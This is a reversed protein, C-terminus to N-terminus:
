LRWPLLLRYGFWPFHIIKSRNFDPEYRDLAKKLTKPLKGVVSPQRLLNVILSNGLYLDTYFSDLIEWQNFLKPEQYHKRAGLQAVLVRSDEM